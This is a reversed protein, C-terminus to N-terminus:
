ARTTPSSGASSRTSPWCSAPGASSGRRRRTAPAPWCASTASCRRRPDADQDRRDHGRVRRQAAETMLDDSPHEARWDIYEAFGDVAARRRREHRTPAGGGRPAPVEDLRDRIAVQDEEPIGLLMGIIRMPMEAALDPIFDFRGTGVLPDLTRSCFRRVEPEIANMTRPTFVRSLLGRHDDHAPPDEFLISGPPIEMGSM